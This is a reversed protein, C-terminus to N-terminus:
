IIFLNPERLFICDLDFIELSPLFYEPPGFFLNPSSNTQDIIDTTFKLDTDITLVAFGYCCLIM